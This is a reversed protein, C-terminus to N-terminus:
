RSRCIADLCPKLPCTAYKIGNGDGHQVDGGGDNEPDNVPRPYHSTPPRQFPVNTIPLKHIARALIYQPNSNITYLIRVIVITLLVIHTLLQYPLRPASSNGDNRELGITTFLSSLTTV